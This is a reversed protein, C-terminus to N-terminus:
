RFISNWVRTGIRYKTGIGANSGARSSSGIGSFFRSRYPEKPLAPSHSRSRNRSRSFQFPGKSFRTQQPTAQWWLYFYEAVALWVILDPQWIVQEMTEKMNQIDNAHWWYCATADSLWGRCSQLLILGGYQANRDLYRYTTCLANINGVILM